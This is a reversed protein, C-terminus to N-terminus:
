VNRWLKKQKCNCASSVLPWYISFSGNAENIHWFKQYSYDFSYNNKFVATTLLYFPSQARLYFAVNKQRNWLDEHKHTKLKEKRTQIIWPRPGLHYLFKLADTSFFLSSRNQYLKLSDRSKRWSKIYHGKKGLSRRLIVIPSRHSTESM